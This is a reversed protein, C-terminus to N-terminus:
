EEGGTTLARRRDKLKETYHALITLAERIIEPETKTACQNLRRSLQTLETDLDDMLRYTYNGNEPTIRIVTM